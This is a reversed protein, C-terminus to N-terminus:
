REINRRNGLCFNVQRFLVPLEAEERRRTDLSAVKVRLRTREM